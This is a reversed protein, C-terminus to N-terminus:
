RGVEFRVPRSPVASANAFAPAEAVCLHRVDQSAIQIASELTAASQWKDTCIADVDNHSM